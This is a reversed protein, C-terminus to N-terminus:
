RDSPDRGSSRNAFTSALRQNLCELVLFDSQPHGGAVTRYGFAVSRNSWELTKNDQKESVPILLLQHREPGIGLVVRGAPTEVPTERVALSGMAVPPGQLLDRYWEAVPPIGHIM